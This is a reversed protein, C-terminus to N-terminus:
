VNADGYGEYNNECIPGLITDDFSIVKGDNTNEEPKDEKFAFCDILLSGVATALPVFPSIRKLGAGILTTTFLIGETGCIGVRFATDASDKPKSIESEGIYEIAESTASGILKNIM